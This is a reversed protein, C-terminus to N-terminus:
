PARKRCWNFLSLGSFDELEKLFIELPFGMVNTYSGSTKRIFLAGLGQIAYAGAKDYPESTRLYENIRNKPLRHFWVSSRVLKRRIGRQPSYLVLGTFVRQQKGSQLKLLRFADSRNQPKGLVKGNVLVLTDAAVVIDGPNRIRKEVSM